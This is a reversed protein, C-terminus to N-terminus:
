SSSKSSLSCECLSIFMLGKVAQDCIIAHIQRKSIEVQIHSFLDLHYSAKSYKQATQKAKAYQLFLWKQHRFFAAM